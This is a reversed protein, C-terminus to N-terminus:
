VRLQVRATIVDRCGTITVPGLSRLPSLLGVDEALIEATFVQTGYGRALGALEALLGRGIGRRQWEDLVLVGIEREGLGTLAASAFGILRRDQWATVALQATAVRPPSAASELLAALYAAPFTRAWGHWRGYRSGPSCADHMAVLAPGDEAGLRRFAIPEHRAAPDAGSADIVTTM